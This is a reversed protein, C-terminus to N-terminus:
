KRLSQLSEKLLITSNGSNVEDQIIACGILIHHIGVQICCHESPLLCMLNYPTDLNFDMYM